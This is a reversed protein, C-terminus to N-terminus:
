LAVKAQDGVEPRTNTAAAALMKVTALLKGPGDWIEAEEPELRLVRINPDDASDWWAKAFPSWLDRVKQRDDSVSVRGSCAVYKTGGGDAFTLLVRPFRELQETKAQREDALFCIAHENKRVSASMPRARNREGDWTVLMCTGIKEMLEWARELQDDAM